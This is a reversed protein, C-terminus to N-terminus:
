SNNKYRGDNDVDSTNVEKATDMLPFSNIRKIFEMTAMRNPIVIKDNIIDYVEFKYVEVKTGEQPSAEMENMLNLAKLLKDYNKGIMDHGNMFKSITGTSIGSRRSLEAQSWGKSEIRSIVFLNKESINGKYKRKM